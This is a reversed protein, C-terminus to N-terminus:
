LILLDYGDLLQTQFGTLTTNTKTEDILIETCTAISIVQKWAIEVEAVVKARMM